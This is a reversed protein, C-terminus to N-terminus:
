PNTLPQPPIRPHPASGAMVIFFDLRNWTDSLYCKPGFIGLALMKVVMEVAFFAFIFDDFAQLISCWESECRIDECPQYLGLTACNLLIVLMSVREFWPNCVLRLCWSRPRTTQKICFFVVPALGPYPPQEKDDMVLDPAPDRGSSGGSGTSEANPNGASGEEKEKEEDGETDECRVPLQVSEWIPVRVEQFDLYQVPKRAEGDTM